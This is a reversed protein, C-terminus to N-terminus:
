DKWMEASQLLQSIALSRFFSHLSLTLGSYCRDLSNFVSSSALKLPVEKDDTRDKSLLFIHNCKKKKWLLLVLVSCCVSPPTM